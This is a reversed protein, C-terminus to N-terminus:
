GLLETWSPKVTGKSDYKIGYYLTAFFLNGVAFAISLVRRIQDESTDRSHFAFICVRKALANSCGEAFKWFKSANANTVDETSSRSPTLNTSSDDDQRTGAEPSSLANGPLASDHSSRGLQVLAYDLYILLATCVWSFILIVGSFLVIGPAFALAESAIEVWNRVRQISWIFIAVWLGEFVILFPYWCLSPLELSDRLVVPIAATFFFMIYLFGLFISVPFALIKRFTESQSLIIVTWLWICYQTVFAVQHVMLSVKRLFRAESRLGRDAMDVTTSQPLGSSFRVFVEVCWPVLFLAAWVKTWYLGTAGLAKIAQPLPGLIFFFITVAPIGQILQRDSKERLLEMEKRYWYMSGKVGLARRRGHVLWLVVIIVDALCVFPSSRAPSLVDSSPIRDAGSRQTMANIALAILAWLASAASASEPPSDCATTNGVTINYELATTRNSGNVPSATQIFSGGVSTSAITEILTSPSALATM